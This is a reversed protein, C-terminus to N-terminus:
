KPFLYEIQGFSYMKLEGSKIKLVIQGDDRVDHISAEFSTKHDKFLGPKDWRYLNRFYQKNIEQFGDENFLSSKTKFIQIFESLIESVNYDNGTMDKLSVAKLNKGTMNENINLGIGAICRKMVSGYISNEILIGAMKKDKVLIDNPWKIIASPEYKQALELLCISIFKSLFFNKEIPINKPEFVISFLLNKNPESEWCHEGQGRGKEQFGTTIVYPMEPQPTLKAAYSNTSHCIDLEIITM